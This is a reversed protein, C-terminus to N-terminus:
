HEDNGRGGDGRGQESGSARSRTDSWSRPPSRSRRDRRRLAQGCPVPSRCAPSVRASWPTATGVIPDQAVSEGALELQHQRRRARPREHRTGGSGRSSGRPQRPPRIGYTRQRKRRAALTERRPWCVSPLSSCSANSRSGAKSGSQGVSATTRVGGPRRARLDDSGTTSRPRTARENTTPFRPDGPGEPKRPRGPPPAHDPLSADGAAIGRQRHDTSVQRQPKRRGPTSHTDLAPCGGRSQRPCADWGVGRPSCVRPGECHADVIGNIGANAGARDRRPVVVWRAGCVARPRVRSRAFASGGGAEYALLGQPSCGTVSTQVVMSAGRPEAFHVGHM